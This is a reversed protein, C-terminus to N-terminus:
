LSALTFHILDNQREVGFFQGRTLVTSVECFNM